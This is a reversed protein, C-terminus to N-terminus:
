QVSGAFALITGMPVFLAVLAWVGGNMHLRDALRAVVVVYLLNLTGLVILLPIRAEIWAPTSSFGAYLWACGCIFFALFSGNLWKYDSAIVERTPVRIDSMAIHREVTAM